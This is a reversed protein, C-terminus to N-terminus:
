DLGKMTKLTQPHNIVILNAGAARVASAAATEFMIRRTSLNGFSPPFDDSKAEKTKLAEECAFSIIPMNLYKDNAGELRIKEIISYGYEFGYGLGGIDTDILIKDLPQGLDSSLINIEKALNIDIPSRLVVFHKQATHPIIEKYTNENASVIICTRPANDALAPLLLKDLEDEGCGRIMLPIKIQGLIEKLIEVAQPIDEPANINFKLGLIDPSLKQATKILEARSIQNQSAGARSLNENGHCNEARAGEEEATCNVGGDEGSQKAEPFLTGRSTDRRNGKNRLPLIYTELFPFGNEPNFIPLELIYLSKEPFGGRCQALLTELDSNRAPIDKM